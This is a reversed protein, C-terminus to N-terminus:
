LRLEVSFFPRSSQETVDRVLVIRLSPGLTGIVIHHFRKVDACTKSIQLV